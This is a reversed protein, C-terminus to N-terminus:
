FWTTLQIPRTMVKSFFVVALVAMCSLPVGFSYSGGYVNLRDGFVFSIVIVLVLIVSSLYLALSMEKSDNLVKIQTYSSFNILVPM